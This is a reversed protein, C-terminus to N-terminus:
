RATCESARTKQTTRCHCMAPPDILMILKGVGRGERISVAPSLVRHGAVLHDGNAPGPLVVELGDVQVDGALFQHDDRAQGAAALARQRKVRDVRFALAFVDLREAGIGPLKQLLHGLRLGLLDRTQRRGDGDLLTRGRMVRARRHGRRSVHVVIQSQQKRPHTLRTAPGAVAAAFRAPSRDGALGGRLDDIAHHVPRLPGLEHHQRRQHAALFALMALDELGNLTLPEHPCADVAFHDIQTLGRRQGLRACVGDLGNDIADDDFALDSRAQGVRDLDGQLQRVAKHDNRHQFVALGLRDLGLPPLFLGVVLRGGFGPGILREALLVGAGHM